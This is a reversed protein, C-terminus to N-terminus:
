WMYMHYMYVWCVAAKSVTDGDFFEYIELKMDLSYPSSALNQLQHVFNLYIFVVLEQLKIGQM